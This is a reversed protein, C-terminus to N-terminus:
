QLVVMEGVGTRSETRDPYTEGDPREQAEGELWMNIRAGGGDGDGAACRGGVVCLVTEDVLGGGGVAVRTGGSAVRVIGERTKDTETM